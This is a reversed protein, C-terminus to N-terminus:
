KPAPSEGKGIGALTYGVVVGILAATTQGNLMEELSLILIAPLLLTVTLLQIALVDIGRRSRFRDIFVGVVGAVMVTCAVIEVAIRMWDTPGTEM